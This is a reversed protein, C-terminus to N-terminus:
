GPKVPWSGVPKKEDQKSREWNTPSSTWSSKWNPVSLLTVCWRLGEPQARGLVGRLRPLFLLAHLLLGFGPCAALRPVVVRGVYGSSRPSM